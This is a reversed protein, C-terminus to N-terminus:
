CGCTAMWDEYPLPDRDLPHRVARVRTVRVAQMVKTACRTAVDVMFDVDASPRASQRMFDLDNHM